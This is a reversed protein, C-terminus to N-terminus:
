IQWQLEVDFGSWILSLKLWHSVTHVTHIINRINYAWECYLLSSLRIFRIDKSCCMLYFRPSGPKATCNKLINEPLRTSDFVNIKRKVHDKFLAQVAAIENLILKLAFGCSYSNETRWLEYKLTVRRKPNEPATTVDVDLFRFFVLSMCWFLLKKEHEM